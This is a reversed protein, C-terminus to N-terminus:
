ALCQPPPLPLVLLIIQTPRAPRRLPHHPPLGHPPDASGAAPVIREYPEHRRTNARHIEDLSIGIAITAPTEPSAGHAKLWRGIVRIKFDATCSRTGPAGNSM